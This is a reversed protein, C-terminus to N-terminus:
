GGGVSIGVSERFREQWGVMFDEAIRPRAASDATEALGRCFRAAAEELVVAM